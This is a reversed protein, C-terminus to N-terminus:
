LYCTLSVSSPVPLEVVETIRVYLPTLYPKISKPANAFNRFAVILKM